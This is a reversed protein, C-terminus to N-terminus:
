QFIPATFSVIMGIIEIIAECAGVDTVAAM